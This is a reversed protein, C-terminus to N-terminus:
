FESLDRHYKCVGERKDVLDIGMWGLYPRSYNEGEVNTGKSRRLLHDMFLM